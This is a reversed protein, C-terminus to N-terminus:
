EYVASVLSNVLGCLAPNLRTDTINELVVVASGQPVLINAIGLEYTDSTRTLEPAIPTPTAVGTLIDM